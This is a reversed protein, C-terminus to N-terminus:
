VKARLADQDSHRWVVVGLIEVDRGEVQGYEENDSRLLTGSRDKKVLRRLHTEDGLRAVVIDGPRANHTKKVAVWDGPLLRPAMSYGEIRIAYDAIESHESLVPMYEGTEEEALTKEGAKLVGCVPLRADSATLPRANSYDRSPPLPTEAGAEAPGYGAAALWEQPDEEASRAMRLIRERPPVLGDQMKSVYSSHVGLRAAFPVLKQDGKRKRIFRGFEESYAM